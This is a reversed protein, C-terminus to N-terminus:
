TTSNLKQLLFYLVPPQSSVLEPAVNVIANPGNVISTTHRDHQVPSTLPLPPLLTDLDEQLQKAPSTLPPLLTDLDFSEDANNDVHTSTQDPSSQCVSAVSPSAPRSPDSEYNVLQQFEVFNPVDRNPEITPRISGLGLSPPQVIKPIDCNPEITPQILGLGLSPPQVIKPIDCKPEITQRIPGLGLTPPQDINPVDCSPEITSRIPNLGLSPPTTIHPFPSQIQTPALPGGAIDPAPSAIPWTTPQNSDLSSPQIFSNPLHHSAPPPPSVHTHPSLPQASPLSPLPSPLKVIDKKRKKKKVPIVNGQMATQKLVHFTLDLYVSIDFQPRRDCLMLSSVTPFTIGKSLDIANQRANGDLAENANSQGAQLPSTGPQYKDLIQQIDALAQAREKSSLLSLRNSIQLLLLIPSHCWISIFM